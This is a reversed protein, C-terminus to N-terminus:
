PIELAEVIDRITGKKALPQRLPTDLNVDYVNRRGVKKKAVVGARVLDDIIKLVSRETLCVIMALERVTMTPDKVLGLLVHTHHTLFTWHGM